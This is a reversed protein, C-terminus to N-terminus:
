EGKPRHFLISSPVGFGTVMVDRKARTAAVYLLAREHVEAERRVVPDGSEMEVVNLPVVGERVSAIIVHDFELGKVRHMTAVRVGAVRRDEAETRHVRYTQVGKAKLANEYQDVLENTRVVLCCGSLPEGEAEIRKVHSAIAAIEQDFTDLHELHPDVGHLLSRYGKNDDSGDDLDDIAVGELLGVAWRRTEDTTRYNIRLKKGRGRIDIGCRGLVVKHRYIRQHADGVIFLSPQEGDARVMARILQFAQFGMDQAEDVVVAQYPGGVGKADLIRRADRMADVAERMGAANLLARYEEFVPWVQKRQKRSLRTGRGVRTAKQYEDLSDISQPQVVLDWEERYFSEDLDLESPAVTLAKNWIDKTKHAYVVNHSYGNSRLFESVWRDLNLVEIRKMADDPCIKNLSERIDSALNRTFTTFLIRDNPAAFKKTALWKARHMAVVTKGTGAGGLVRVAGKWDTEVLKRQSPHLFVRWKDLPANLMEALEQEDEVVFFRRKSDPKELAAVFDGTDVKKPEVPLEMEKRVEDLKYGAALMYLAEAAEQPFDSAVRDLADDTKLNRVMPLLLDPVGLGTLQADTVGDFLGPKEPEAPIVMPAGEEVPIVQLSGTEPHVRCVKNKAWAYAEDHHDVWLLVYVNNGAPRLVIGRYAQDIRVSCLNEDRCHHLKEYNIGPLTPDARFKSIFSLVKAQQSRPIKAFASLFDSGVAVTPKKAATTM